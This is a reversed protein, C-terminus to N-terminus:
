LKIGEAKALATEIQVWLKWPLDLFEASDLAKLAAYMDEAAEQKLMLAREQLMMQEKAAGM